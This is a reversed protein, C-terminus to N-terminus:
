LHDFTIRIVEKPYLEHSYKIVEKCQEVDFMGIHCREVTINMKNALWQYAARRKTKKKIWIRDFATHALIKYKRLEANALRGLPEGTGKHSGVWAGCPKCIHMVGYSVGYIEKSDIIEAINGCYPCLNGYDVGDTEM